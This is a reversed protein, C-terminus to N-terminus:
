GEITEEPYLIELCSPCIGHSFETESHQSAQDLERWFGESNRIMKCYSCIAMLGELTKM